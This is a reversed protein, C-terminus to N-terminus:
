CGRGAACERDEQGPLPQGRSRGANRRHILLTPASIAALVGRVDIGANMRALAAAATPSASLREFRGVM